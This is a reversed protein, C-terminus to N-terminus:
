KNITVHIRYLRISLEFVTNIWLTNQIRFAMSKNFISTWCLTFYKKKFIKCNNSHIIIINSHFIIFYIKQNFISKSFIYLVILTLPFMNKHLIRLKYEHNHKRIIKKGYSIVLFYSLEFLWPNYNDHDRLLSCTQFYRTM